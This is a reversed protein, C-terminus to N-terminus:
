HIFTVILGHHVLRLEGPAFLPPLQLPFLLFVQVARPNVSFQAVDLPTGAARVLAALSLFLLLLFYLARLLLWDFVRAWRWRLLFLLLPLAGRHFVIEHTLLLRAVEHHRRLFSGVVM